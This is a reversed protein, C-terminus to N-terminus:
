RIREHDQMVLWTIIIEVRRLGMRRVFLRDHEAGDPRSLVVHRKMEHRNVATGRQEFVYRGSQFFAHLALGAEVKSYRVFCKEGFQRQQGFSPRSRKGFGAIHLCVSRIGRYARVGLSPPSTKSCTDTNSRLPTLEAADRLFCGEWSM